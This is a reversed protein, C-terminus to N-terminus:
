ALTVLVGTMPKLNPRLNNLIIILDEARVKTEMSSIGVLDLGM